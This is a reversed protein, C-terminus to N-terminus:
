PQATVAGSPVLGRLSKLWACCSMTVGPAAVHLSCGWNSSQALQPGAILVYVFGVIVDKLIRPHCYDSLTRM